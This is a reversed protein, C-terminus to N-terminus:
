LTSHKRLPDLVRNEAEVAALGVAVAVVKHPELFWRTAGLGLRVLAAGVEVLQEVRVLQVVLQEVLPEVLEAVQQAV